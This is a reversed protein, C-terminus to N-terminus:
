QVTGSYTANARSLVTSPPNLTAAVAPAAPPAPVVLPSSVPAYTASGTLTLTYNGAPVSSLSWTGPANVSASSASYSVGKFAIGTISAVVGANGLPPQPNVLTVASSVTTLAVPLTIGSVSTSANAVVNATTSAQWYGVRSATVTFAPKAPLTVPVGSITWNGSSDTSTSYTTSLTSDSVTVSVGALDAAGLALGTGNANLAVTGFLSGTSRHLNFSGLSTAAGGTVQVVPVVIPDYGALSLQLSYSGPPAAPFSFAGNVASSTVTTPNSWAAGNFATGRLTATVGGSNGAPAPVSVTGGASGANIGLTLAGSPATVNGSVVVVTAPGAVVNYNAKHVSVTYAAGTPSVPVAVISYNGNADTIGEFTGGALDSGS